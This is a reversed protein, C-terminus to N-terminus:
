LQTHHTIYNYIIYSTHYMVVLCTLMAFTGLPAHLRCSSRALCSGPVCARM